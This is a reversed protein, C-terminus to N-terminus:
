KRCVYVFAPPLNNLVVRTKQISSFFGGLTKRFRRGAPLWHPGFYAFSTFTSSPHISAAVESLISKQLREPFSAWPLGSVVADPSAFGEDRLHGSLKTACGELIRAEPFRRATKSALSPSKEIALFQAGPQLSELITGTVAGNGPGLELVHRADSVGAANVILRALELSSPWVAGVSSPSKIFERVFTLSM